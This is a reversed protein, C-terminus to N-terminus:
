DQHVLEVRHMMYNWVKEDKIKWFKSVRDKEVRTWGDRGGPNLFM